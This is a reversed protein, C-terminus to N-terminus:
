GGYQKRLAEREAALKDKRFKPGRKKLECKGLSEKPIIWGATGFKEAGELRGDRCMLTILGKSKGIIEAAEAASVYKEKLM